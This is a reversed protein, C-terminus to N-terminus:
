INHLIVIFMLILKTTASVWEKERRDFEIKLVGDLCGEFNKLDKESFKWDYCKSMHGFFTRLNTGQTSPQYWPCEGEKFKKKTLNLQWDVLMGNGLLIKQQSTIGSCAVFCFPVEASGLSSPNKVPELM